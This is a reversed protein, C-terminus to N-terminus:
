TRVSAFRRAALYLVILGLVLVAGEIRVSWTHLSDFQARIPSGVPLSGIEGASLRLVDMKPIIVFQSIATLVIMFLVVIHGAAFPRARGLLAGNYIASCLLFVVGCVFGIWHLDLLSGRVVQGAQHSPLSSFSTQAVFPFFILAGLWVAISLLMVFRLFTMSCHYTIIPLM